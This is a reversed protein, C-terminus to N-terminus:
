RHPVTQGGEVRYRYSSSFIGAVRDTWGSETDETHSLSSSFIGGDKVTYEPHGNERGVVIRSTVWGNDRRELEQSDYTFTTDGSFWGPYEITTSGPTNSIHWTAGGFFGSVELDAHDGHKYLDYDQGYRSNIRTTEGRNEVEFTWSSGFFGREGVEVTNKSVDIDYNGFLSGSTRYDGDRERELRGRSGFPGRVEVYSPNVVAEGPAGRAVLQPAVFLNGNLDRAVGEGAHIAVPPYAVEEDHCVTQGQSDTDCERETKRELDVRQISSSLVVVEPADIEVQIEPAPPAAAATGASGLLAGCAMGVGAAVKAWSVDSKEEYRAASLDAQPKLSQPGERNLRPPAAFRRRLPSSKLLSMYVGFRELRLM